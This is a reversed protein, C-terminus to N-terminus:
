CVPRRSYVRSTRHWRRSTIRIGLTRKWTRDMQSTTTLLRILPAWRNSNCTTCRGRQRWESDAQAQTTSPAWIASYSCRMLLMWTETDKTTTSLKPSHSQNAKSIRSPVKRETTAKSRHATGNWTIQSLRCTSSVTTPWQRQWKWQVKHAMPASRVEERHAGRTSRNRRFVENKAM